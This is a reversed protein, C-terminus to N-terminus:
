KARDHCTTNRLGVWSILGPAYKSLNHRSSLSAPTGPPGCVWGESHYVGLLYQKM